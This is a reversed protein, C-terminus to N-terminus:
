DNQIYLLSGEGHPEVIVRVNVGDRVGEVAWRVPKGINTFQAGAKGSRQTWTAGPDTTLDSVVHM